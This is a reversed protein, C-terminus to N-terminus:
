PGSNGTRDRGADANQRSGGLVWRGGSLGHLRAPEDSEDGAPEPPAEDYLEEIDVGLAKAYVPLIEASPRVKGKEYLRVTVHSREIQGAVARLTLGAALRAQEARKASFRRGREGSEDEASM